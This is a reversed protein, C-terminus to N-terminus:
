VWGGRWIVAMWLLDSALLQTIVRLFRYGLIVLQMMSLFKSFHLPFKRCVFLLRRRFTATRPSYIACVSHRKTIYLLCSLIQNLHWILREQPHDSFPIYITDSGRSGSCVREIQTEVKIRRETLTDPIIFNRIAEISGLVLLQVYKGCPIEDTGFMSLTEEDLRKELLQVLWSHLGCLFYAAKYNYNALRTTTRTEM